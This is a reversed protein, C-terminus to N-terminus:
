KVVGVLVAIPISIYGLFILVAVVKALRDIVGAYAANKLGLSQFM